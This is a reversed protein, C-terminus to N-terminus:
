FTPPNSLLFFFFHLFNPIVHEGGLRLKELETIIDHASDHVELGRLRSERVYLWANLGFLVCILAGEVLYGTARFQYTLSHTHAYSISFVFYAIFVAAAIITLVSEPLRLFTILLRSSSASRAKYDALLERSAQLLMRFYSASDFFSSSFFSSSFSLNSRPGHAIWAM